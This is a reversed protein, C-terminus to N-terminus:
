FVLVEMTPSRLFSDDRDLLSGKPFLEMHLRIMNLKSDFGTINSYISVGNFGEPVDYGYKDRNFIAVKDVSESNNVIGVIMLIVAIITLVAAVIYKFHREQIIRAHCPSMM